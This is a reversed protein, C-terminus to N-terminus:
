AENEQAPAWNKPGQFFIEKGPWVNQAESPCNEPESGNNEPKQAPRQQKKARREQERYCKGTRL